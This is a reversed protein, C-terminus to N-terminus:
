TISTAVSFAAAPSVGVDVPVMLRFGAIGARFDSFPDFQLELFGAGDFVAVTVRSFDGLILTGTPVSTTAIAPIGLIGDADWLTNGGGAHRERGGILEQVTPHGVWVLNDERAGSLLVQERQNLASAHAYSTGSQAHVGATNVIGTPQGAVGSGAIIAADIARAVAEAAQSAVVSEAPAQLLLQRSVQMYASCYKPTFAVAGFVPQSEPIAALEAAIWSATPVTTTRPLSFPTSMGTMVTVLQGFVSFRQILSELPAAPTSVLAGGATFTGATLDRFAMGSILRKSPQNVTLLERLHAGLTLGNASSLLNGIITDATPLGASNPYELM